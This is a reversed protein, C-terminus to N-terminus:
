ICLAKNVKYKEIEERFNKKVGASFHTEFYESETYEELGKPDIKVLLKLKECRENIMDENILGKKEMGTHGLLFGRMNSYNDAILIERLLYEPVHECIFNLHKPNRWHLTSCRLLYPGEKRFFDNMAQNHWLKFEKLRQELLEYEGAASLRTWVGLIVENMDQKKATRKSQALPTFVSNDKTDESFKVRKAPREIIQLGNKVEDSTQM